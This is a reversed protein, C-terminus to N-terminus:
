FKKLLHYRVRKMGSLQLCTSQCDIFSQIVQVEDTDVRNAFHFVFSCSLFADYFKSIEVQSSKCYLIPLEMSYIKALIKNEQIANFCM